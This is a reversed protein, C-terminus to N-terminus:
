ACSGASGRAFGHDVFEKDHKISLSQLNPVLLHVVHSLILFLACIEFHISSLMGSYSEFMKAVSAILRHVYSFENGRQFYSCFRFIFCFFWGVWKGEPRRGVGSVGASFGSYVVFFSFCYFFFSLWCHIIM